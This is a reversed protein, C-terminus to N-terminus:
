VVVVVLDGGESGEAFIGGLKEWLLCLGTVDRVLQKSSDRVVLHHTRLDSHVQGNDHLQALAKGIDAM